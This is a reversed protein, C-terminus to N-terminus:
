LQAALEAAHKRLMWRGKGYGVADALLVAVFYEATVCRVLVTGFEAKIAIDAIEGLELSQAANRLELFRFSFEMAMAEIDTSAEPSVFQEVAIGDFGMLIAARAGPTSEVIRTLTELM